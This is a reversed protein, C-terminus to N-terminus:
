KLSKERKDLQIELNKLRQLDTKLETIEKNLMAKDASDKQRETALNAQLEAMTQIITILSHAGDKWKSRPYQQVFIELQDKAALYDDFKVPGELCSLANMFIDTDSPSFRFFSKSKVDPIKQCKSENKVAKVACGTMIFLLILCAILCRIKNLM